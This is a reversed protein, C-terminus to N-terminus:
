SPYIALMVIIVTELNMNDQRFDVGFIIKNMYLDFSINMWQADYRCELDYYNSWRSMDPVFLHVTIQLKTSSSSRPLEEIHLWKCQTKTRSNVTKITQISKSEADEWSWFNFDRDITRLKFWIPKWSCILNVELCPYSCFFLNTSIVTVSFYLNSSLLYNYM